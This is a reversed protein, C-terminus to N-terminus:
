VNSIDCWVQKCFPAVAPRPQQDKITKIFDHIRDYPVIEDLLDYLKCVVTLRFVSIHHDDEGSSRQSEILFYAM